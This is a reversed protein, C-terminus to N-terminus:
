RILHTGFRYTTTIWHPLQLFLIIEILFFEELIKLAYYKEKEDDIVLDKNQM